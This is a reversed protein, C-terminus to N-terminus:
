NDNIFVDLGHVGVFHKGDVQQPQYLRRFPFSCMSIITDISNEIQDPYEVNLDNVTLFEYRNVALYVASPQCDTLQNITNVFTGASVRGPYNIIILGSGNNDIEVQQQCFKFFNDQQGIWQWSVNPYCKLFNLCQTEQWLLNDSLQKNRWHNNISM